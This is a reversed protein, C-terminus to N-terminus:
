LAVCELHEDLFPLSPLSDSLGSDKPRMLPQPGLYICLRVRLCHEEIAAGKAAKLPIIHFV